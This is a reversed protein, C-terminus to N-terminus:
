DDTVHAHWVHTGDNLKTPEPHIKLKTNRPLIAEKEEAMTSNNGVYAAKQGKKLHIHIVHHGNDNDDGSVSFGRAIDKHISTSTYAPLHIKNDKNKAAERGPHFRDTGHYVHLDHELPSNHIHRDINAVHKDHAAKNRAAADKYSQPDKESSTHRSGHGAAVQILERNMGFSSSTYHQISDRAKHKDFEDKTKNLANHVAHVNAGIHNNEHRSLWDKHDMREEKIEKKSPKEVAHAGHVPQATILTPKSSKSKGKLFEKFKKM